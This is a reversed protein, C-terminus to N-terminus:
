ICASVFTVPAFVLIGSGLAARNSWMAATSLTTTPERAGFPKGIALWALPILSAVYAAILVLRHNPWGFACGLAQLAYLAVFALSWVTFGSLLLLLARLDQRRM